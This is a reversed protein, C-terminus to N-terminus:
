LGKRVNASKRNDDFLKLQEGIQDGVTDWAQKYVENLDEGEHVVFTIGANFRVSEYNGLNKTYTVDVHVEKPTPM